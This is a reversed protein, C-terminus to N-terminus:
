NYSYNVKFVSLISKDDDMIVRGEKKINDESFLPTGKPSLPAFAWGGTFVPQSSVWQFNCWDANKM